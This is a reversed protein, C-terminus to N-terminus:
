SGAPDVGEGRENVLRALRRAAAMGRAGDTRQIAMLSVTDGDALDLKAWPDGPPFVVGIVEAWEVTRSSFLNRIELEQPRAIARVAAERHCFWLAALGVSVFGVSDVLTSSAIVSAVLASAMVLSGILYAVIRVTRPRFVIEESEAEEVAAGSERESAGARSPAAHEGPEPIPAPDRPTM